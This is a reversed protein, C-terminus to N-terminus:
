KLHSTDGNLKMEWKEDIRVLQVLCCLSTNVTPNGGVLGAASGVVSVAHGVLLINESFEAVLKRATEGTREWVTAENEPYQPIMRSSYNWDIRPYHERLIKPPQTEPPYSMWQPNLWESLGSEIKIQLNLAEAACNATQIARLFPSSFIHTIPENKLRQGLLEAQVAALFHAL